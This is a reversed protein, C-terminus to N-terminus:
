CSVLEYHQGHQETWFFHQYDDDNGADDDEQKDASFASGRLLRRKVETYM